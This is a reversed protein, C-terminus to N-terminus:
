VTQGKKGNLKVGRECMRQLFAKLNENHVRMAEHVTEGCDCILVDDALARVYRLDHIAEHLKKQFIEPAPLIGFPM